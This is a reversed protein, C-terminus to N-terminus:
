RKPGESSSQERVYNAYSNQSNVNRNISENILKKAKELYEEAYIKLQEEQRAIIEKKKLDHLKKELIEIYRPDNKIKKEIRYTSGMCQIKKGM